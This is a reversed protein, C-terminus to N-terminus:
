KIFLDPKIKINLDFSAGVANPSNDIKTNNITAAATSSDALFFKLQSATARFDKVKAELNYNGTTDGNLGLYYVDALTNRELYNLLNTWYIHNKFVTSVLNARDKFNVAPAAAAKADAIEKTVSAVETKLKQGKVAIENSEWLYLTVYAEAIIVTTFLLFVFMILWHRRWNFEVAVQDQLLDMELIKPNAPVKIKEVKKPKLAQKPKIPEKVSAVAPKLSAPPTKENVATKKPSLKSFM